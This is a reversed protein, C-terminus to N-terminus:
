SAFFLGRFPPLVVTILKILSIVIQPETLGLNQVGVSDGVDILLCYDNDNADDLM